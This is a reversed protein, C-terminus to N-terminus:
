MAVLSEYQLSAKVHVTKPSLISFTNDFLLFYEGKHTIPINFSYKSVQGSEDLFRCPRQARFKQFNHKDFVYFRIDNGGGGWAEFQGIIYVNDKGSTNIYFKFYKSDRQPVILEQSLLEELRCQRSSLLRQTEKLAIEKVSETHQALKNEMYKFVEKKFEAIEVHLLEIVKPHLGTLFAVRQNDAWSSLRHFNVALTKWHNITYYGVLAFAIIIVMLVVTQSTIVGIIFWHYFTIILSIATAIALILNAIKTWESVKSM